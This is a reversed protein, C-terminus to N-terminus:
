ARAGLRRTLEPVAGRRVQHYVLLGRHWDIGLVVFNPTISTYAVALAARGRDRPGGEGRDFPVALLLSDARGRGALQRALVVLIEWTGTVAYRPLRWAQAVLRGQGGLSAVWEERVQAGALLALAVAVAGVGLEHLSLSGTLVFWAALLVAAQIPGRRLIPGRRSM